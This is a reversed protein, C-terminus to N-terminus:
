RDPKGGLSEVWHTLFFKKADPLFRDSRAIIPRLTTTMQLCVLIFIVSWTKLHGRTKEGRFRSMGGILRLGFFLGILWFLLHTTGMFAVSNTSQSFIWAVPAFGILLLSSLCVAAALGGAVALLRIDSGGLCSFIYLSPLCILISFLTGLVLKAPAIWLQMGGTLSGVALGYLAMGGLAFLLFWIAPAAPNARHLTHIIRGPHKLLNELLLLPKPNGRM